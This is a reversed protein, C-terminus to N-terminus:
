ELNLEPLEVTQGALEHTCDSLFQIMGERVFSHCVYCVPAKDDEPHEKHYDCWCKKGEQGSVYHGCTILLSPTFTPSDVNGNFGWVFNNRDTPETYIIHYDKCGPCKFKYAIRKADRDVVGKVKM